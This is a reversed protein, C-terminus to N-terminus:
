TQVNVVTSSPVGGALCTSVGTASVTHTAGSLTMPALNSSGSNGADTLEDVNMTSSLAPVATDPLMVSSNSVAVNVGSASRASPSVYVTRSVLPMVSLPPSAITASAQVNVVICAGSPVQAGIAVGAILPRSLCVATQVPLSIIM